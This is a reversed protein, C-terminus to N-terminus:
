HLKPKKQIWQLWWVFYVVILLIFTLQFIFVHAYQFYVRNHHGIAILVVLRAYNVIFTFFFAGVIGIFRKNSETPFSVILSFLIIFPYIGTCDPIISFKMETGSTLAISTNQVLTPIHFVNLLWNTIKTTIFLLPEQIFPLLSIFVLVLIWFVVWLIYRFAKNGTFKINKTKEM